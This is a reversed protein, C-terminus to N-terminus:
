MVEIGRELYYQRMNRYDEDAVIMRRQKDLDREEKSPDGELSEWDYVDPVDKCFMRTIHYRLARNM